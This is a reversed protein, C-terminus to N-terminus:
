SMVFRLLRGSAERRGLAQEVVSTLAPSAAVHYDAEPPLTALRAAAQPYDPGTEALPYYHFDDLADVLSRCFNHLYHGGEPAVWVLYLPEPAELAVAHEILSKIPAFGTGEAVMVQPRHAQEDFLFEGFPGHVTVPMGVRLTEFAYVAFPDQPDRRLHFQLLLGNCPCSAIALPRPALESVAVTVYQGALFRLTRTRPTRLYLLLHDEDPRELRAVRTELAQLPIDSSDHAEEAELVMDSAPHNSCLLIYGQLKQAETFVFDHPQGPRVEGEVLRAQCEGCTGTSCNYRLHVGARLGAELLTEGAEATFTRGSPEIRIRFSM